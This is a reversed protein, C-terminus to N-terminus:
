GFFMRLQDAVLGPKGGNNAVGHGVGPITVRQANQLVGSLEDLAAKLYEPSKSGGLLLVECRLAGFRELPGAADNVIRIDRRMTPILDSFSPAGIQRAKADARKRVWSIMPVLLFRPVNLGQTENMVTVLASSLKGQAVEREYRPVWWTASIGDFSFPPEFVALQAIDPLELAAELAIVAGASVGFVKRASTEQIVAALDEVDSRLGNDGLASGSMGRGRRDPLYLSFGDGLEQALKTLIFSMAGGGHLMVIGPGQGTVRYGIRTGDKSTVFRNSFAAAVTSSV